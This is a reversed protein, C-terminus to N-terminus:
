ESLFEIKRIYAKSRGKTDSVDSEFAIGTIPPVVSEKFQSKFKANLNFQTVVTKNVPNGCPSCFYRGGKKYYNGTYAKGEKESEGLFLGIFYPMNPVYFSGSDIKKTGFTIVLGIAERFVGKEWNAGKPYINVGWEIRVSKAGKINVKKCILGTIDDKVDVVLAGNEFYLSMDSADRKLDFGNAKLWKVAKGNEMKSFDLSYVVEAAAFSTQILFFGLLSVFFITFSKRM